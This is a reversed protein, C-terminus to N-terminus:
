VLAQVQVEFLAAGIILGGRSQKVAYRLYFMLFLGRETRWMCGQSPTSRYWPPRLPPPGRMLVWRHGSVIGSEGRWARLCQWAPPWPGRCNTKPARCSNWTGACPGWPLTEKMRGRKRVPQVFSLHWTFGLLHLNQWHTTTPGLLCLRGNM